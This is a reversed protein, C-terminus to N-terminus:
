SVYWSGTVVVTRINVNPAGSSIYINGSDYLFANGGFVGGADGTTRCTLPVTVGTPPRDEPAMKGILEDAALGGSSNTTAQAGAKDSVAVITRRDGERVLLSGLSRRAWGSGPGGSFAGIGPVREPEHDYSSWVLGSEAIVRTWDVSGIRLQTGATAMFGRILDGGAESVAVLIGSNDSVLRLDILETVAAGGAPVFALAIPPFDETGPTTPRSPLQRVATGIISDFDSANTAGWTRRVGVLHWRDSAHADLSIVEEDDNTDVVGSGSVVGSQFSIGRAMAGSIAPRMDDPGHFVYRYGLRRTGTAWDINNVPGTYFKSTIAM